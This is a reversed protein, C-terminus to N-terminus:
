LLKNIACQSTDVQLCVFMIVDHFKPMSNFQMLPNVKYPHKPRPKPTPREGKLRACRKVHREIMVSCEDTFIVDSCELPFHPHLTVFDLRKEKNVDRILQCYGAGLFIDSPM